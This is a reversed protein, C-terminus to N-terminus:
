RMEWPPVELAGAKEMMNAMFVFLPVAVLVYNNMMNFVRYTIIELAEPGFWFLTAATAVAGTTFALPVGLLLLVIIGLVMLISLTAIEM